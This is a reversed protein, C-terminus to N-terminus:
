VQASPFEQGGKLTGKARLITLCYKHGQDNIKVQFDCHFNYGTSEILDKLPM